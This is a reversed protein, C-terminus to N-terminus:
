LPTPSFADIMCSGHGVGGASTSLPPVSMAPWVTATACNKRGRASEALQVGAFAIMDPSPKDCANMTKSLSGVTVASTDVAYADYPPVAV